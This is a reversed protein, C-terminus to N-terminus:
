MSKLLLKIFISSQIEKPCAHPSVIQFNTIAIEPSTKVHIKINAAILAPFSQHAIPSAISLVAVLNM